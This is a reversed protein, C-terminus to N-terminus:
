TINILMVSTYNTLESVNTGEKACSEAILRCRHTFVHPVLHTENQEDRPIFGDKEEHSKVWYSQETGKKKPTRGPM